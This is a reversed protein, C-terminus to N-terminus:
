CPISECSDPYNASSVEQHRQVWHLTASILFWVYQIQQPRPDSDFAPLYYVTRCLHDLFSWIPHDPLIEESPEVDSARLHAAFGENLYWRIEPKFEVMYVIHSFLFGAKHM